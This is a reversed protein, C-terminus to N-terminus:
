NYTASLAVGFWATRLSPADVGQDKNRSFAFQGNLGLGWNDSVWWEKGVALRLGFGAETEGREGAAEVSLQTISPSASLYLNLPMVYYTLNVGLGSMGVSGDVRGLQEGNIRTEPDPASVGWLHGAVIFNEVVAGGLSLSFAGAGGVISPELVDDPVWSSLRGFGLDMQLFFGDHKQAGPDQAWVVRPVASVVLVMAAFLGKM